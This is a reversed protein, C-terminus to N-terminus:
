FIVGSYLEPIVYDQITNIYNDFEVETNILSECINGADKIPLYLILYTSIINCTDNDFEMEGLICKVKEM